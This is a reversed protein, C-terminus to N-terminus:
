KENWIKLKLIKSLKNRSSNLFLIINTLFFAYVFFTFVQKIHDLYISKSQNSQLHYDQFTNVFSTSSLKDKSSFDILKTSFWVPYIGFIFTMMM